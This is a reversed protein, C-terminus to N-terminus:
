RRSIITRLKDKLLLLKIAGDKDTRLVIVGMGKLKELTFKSPFNYRNGRGVSIVAIRPSVAKLFKITSSTRSGHHAIKLVYSNLNKEREVIEKEAEKEIDGTYLIKYNKLKLKLVISDNNTIRKIIEKKPHIVRFDAEGIRIKDGYNLKVIKVGEEKAMDILENLNKGEVTNYYYLKKVKFNKIVRLCGYYHDPHFHSIFIADITRVRSKFLFSSVIYEGIFNDKKYSGGCDVLVKYNLPIEVYSADGEGVDLFYVAPKKISKEPYFTLSFFSLFWLLAIIGRKKKAFFLLFFLIIYLCVLWFPPTLSRLSLPKGIKESLYNLVLVLYYSIEILFGGVSPIIGFLLLSNISFFLTAPIIIMSLFNLIISGFSVYNFFYLNLPLSVLFALLIIYFSQEVKTSVDFIGKMKRLTLILSITIFYTLIFGINVVSLPSFVLYVIGSISVIHLLDTDRWLLKGIFFLLIMFSARVVPPNNGIFLMFIFILIIQIKYINRESIGVFHFFYFLLFSIIGIHAGSIALLHYIGAEKWLFKLDEPISKREGITIAKIISLNKSEDVKVGSVFKSFMLKYKSLYYFVPNNVREREILGDSKVYISGIIKKSFNYYNLFNKHFNSYDSLPYLKGYLRVREGRYFHPFKKTNVYVNLIYGKIEPYRKDSNKLEFRVRNYKYKEPDSVITGEIERYKGLRLIREYGSKAREYSQKESKVYFYFGIGIFIVLLIFFGANKKSKFLFAYFILPISFTLIVYFSKIEFLISVLVIIYIFVFFLFGWYTYKRGEV